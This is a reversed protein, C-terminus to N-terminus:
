FYKITRAYTRSRLMAVAETGYIIVNKKAIKYKGLKDFISSYIKIWEIFVFSLGIKNNFSM